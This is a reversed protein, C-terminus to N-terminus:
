AAESQPTPGSENQGQENGAADGKRQKKSSTRRGGKKKTQALYNPMIEHDIWDFAAQLGENEYVIGIAAEVKTPNGITALFDNCTMKTLTPGDM